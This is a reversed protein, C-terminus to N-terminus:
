SRKLGISRGLSRNPPGSRKSARFLCRDIKGKTENHAQGLPLLFTLSFKQLSPPSPEAEGHSVSGTGTAFGHVAQHIVLGEGLFASLGILDEGANCSIAQSPLTGGTEGLPWRQSNISHPWPDELGLTWLCTPIYCTIYNRHPNTKKAGM